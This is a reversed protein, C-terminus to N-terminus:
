LYKDLFVLFNYADKNIYVDFLNLISKLMDVRGKFYIRHKTKLNDLIDTNIEYPYLDLLGTKNLIEEALQAIHDNLYDVAENRPIVLQKTM